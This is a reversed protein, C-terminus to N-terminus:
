VKIGAIKRAEKYFLAKNELVIANPTCAMICMGCGDCMNKDSIAVGDHMNIANYPCIEVCIKCGTCMDPDVKAYVTGKLRPYTAEVVQSMKDNPVLKPPVIGRMDKITAFGKEDMYDSLGNKIINITRLGKKMLTTLMQVSNAGYMIMTAADKWNQVGGHGSFDVKNMLDNIHLMSRLAMYKGVSSGAISADTAFIVELTDLDVPPAGLYIGGLTVWQCGCKVATRALSSPYPFVKAGIPIKVAKRVETVIEEVVKPNSTMCYHFPRFWPVPCALLIEIAPVGAQELMRAGDVYGELTTGAISGILKMRFNKINQPIWECWRETSWHSLGDLAMQGDECREYSAMWRGFSRPAHPKVARSYDKELLGTKLIVGGAGFDDVKKLIEPTDTLPGSSVMIPNELPIGGIQTKLNAM